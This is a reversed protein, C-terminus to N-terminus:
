PMRELSTIRFTKIAKPSDMLVKAHWIWPANAGSNPPRFTEIVEGEEGAQAYPGEVRVIDRAVRVRHGKEIKRPM